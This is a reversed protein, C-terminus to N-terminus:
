YLIGGRWSIPDTTDWVGMGAFRVRRGVMVNIIRVVLYDHESNTNTHSILLWRGVGLAWRGAAFKEAGPRMVASQEVGFLSALPQKSASGQKGL